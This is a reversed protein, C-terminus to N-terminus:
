NGSLTMPDQPPMRIAWDDIPGEDEAAKGGDDRGNRGVSYLIYGNEIV